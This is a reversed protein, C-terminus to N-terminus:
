GNTAERLPIAAASRDTCQSVAMQARAATSYVKAMKLSPSRAAVGAGTKYDGNGYRIVHQEQHNM